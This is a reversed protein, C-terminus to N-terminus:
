GNIPRAGSRRQLRQNKREYVDSVATLAVSADAFATEFQEAVDRLTSSNDPRGVQESLALLEDNAAGLKESADRANNMVIKLRNVLEELTM